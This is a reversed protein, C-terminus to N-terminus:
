PRLQVIVLSILKILYFITKNFNQVLGNFQVVDFIPLDMSPSFKLEPLAVKYLFGYSWVTDSWRNSSVKFSLSEVTEDLWKAEYIM